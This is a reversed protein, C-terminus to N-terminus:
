SGGDSRPLPQSIDSPDSWQYCRTCVVHRANLNSLPSLSAPRNRISPLSSLNHPLLGPLSRVKVNSCNLNQAVLFLSSNKARKRAEKVSKNEQLFSSGQSCGCSLSDVCSVILWMM